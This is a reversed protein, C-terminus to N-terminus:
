PRHLPRLLRRLTRLPGLAREMGSFLIEDPTTPNSKSLLGVAAIKLADRWASRGPPTPELGARRLFHNVQFIRGRRDYPRLCFGISVSVSVDDGNQVWHPALPPHHVVAGPRLHYVTGRRQLQPRYRAAEFDGAYFRELEEFPVVQTDGPAHLSLEKTGQIQFLFNSEHDIHFPTAVRPSAMFVTLASWTINRRLPEGSWTEIEELIRQLLEAYEPDATHASSLKLWVRSERLQHVTAAVKERLPMDKFRADALATSGSRAVFKGLDGSALMREAVEAVRALGFLGSEVLSHRFMFPSRNFKSRFEAPDADFVASGVPPMAAARPSGYRDTQHM